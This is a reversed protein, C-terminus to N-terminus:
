KGFNYRFCGMIANCAGIVVINIATIITFFFSSLIITITKDNGYRIVLNLTVAFVMNFVFTTITMVIMGRTIDNVRDEHWWSKMM